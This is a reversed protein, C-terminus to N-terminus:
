LNLLGLMKRPNRLTHCAHGIAEECLKWVDELDCDSYKLVSRMLEQLELLKEDPLAPYSKSGHVTRQKLVSKGFFAERALKVSLAGSGLIQFIKEFMQIKNEKSLSQQTIPEDSAPMSM